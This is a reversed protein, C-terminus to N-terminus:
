WLSYVCKEYVFLVNGYNPHEFCFMVNGQEDTSRFRKAISM